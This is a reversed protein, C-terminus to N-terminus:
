KLLELRWPEKQRFQNVFKRKLRGESELHAYCARDCARGCLPGVYFNRGKPYYVLEDMVQKAEEMGLRKTGNLIEERDEFERFAEPPLFPNYHGNAGKYYAACQWRDLERVTFESGACNIKTVDDWFAQGPCAALCQGCQDCLTTTKVDDSELVANTLIFGFRQFPGFDDTLVSGSMGLEGLGCLVASKKFYLQYEGEIGRYIDEYRVEPNTQDAENMILRCEKQVAAEYGHDELFGAVQWLVKPMYVVELAELASYCQYFMSGEMVGRFPGRLIKFGLGIVTKTEPYIELPHNRSDCCDFRGVDSFGVLDAGYKKAFEVIKAKLECVPSGGM